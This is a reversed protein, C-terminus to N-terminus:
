HFPLPFQRLREEKVKKKVLSQRNRKDYTLKHPSNTNRKPRQQFELRRIGSPDKHSGDEKHKTPETPPPYTGSRQRLM